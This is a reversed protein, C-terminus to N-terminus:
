RGFRVVVATGEPVMTGPAPAQERAIGSGLVKVTIGISGAQEIVKRVPEGTFQPVTVRKGAAVVVGGGPAPTASSPAQLPQQGAKNDAVEKASEEKEQERKAELIKPDILPSAPQGSDEPAPPLAGSDQQELDHKSVPARTGDAPSSRLPDNAPLNNVEAFLSNLDDANEQPEDNDAHLAADVKAAQAPTRLPQDHPVGLYELIEQALEQFVPGSAEAGFHMSHDPSDTIVAITVAPNNVPAFGVFSGVFNTKSYTHTRPDIKQATGTKGAASYGNLQTTLHGTGFEVVGEMMKRMQAATLTSIVRHAGDPLPSPLDNEPHFAAPQLKGDGKMDNTSQLLIHPPLYVGGNAITSAMSILQIPTVAVEQGMPISGITTPNWKRVPKLLGRTEDPLEIGTRDGFGYAKIYQYFKEAGMRQALRIAAVDSSEALAKAVTINGFHEGPADHVIRGAVNIQGGGCDVMGDPTAVHEELAASYTVLKFTSGPEYVDSVAHDRLLDTTAHRFDNPNFTPRVALALIQGTHPDQVVVTGVKAHTRAMNHDLAREAMYQINEDITLVLNEGPLPEREESGLRHRRADVNAYMRGPTGHLDEDFNEELGGLGNDDIGVYGLVQAAIENDPYFRKFEKVTYIGKLNLAKVKAIMEPSQKRAIWAFNRSANLRALMQSGSTFTDTPDVHLVAALATATMPKNDGVESPVAFISDALTTMALEHLNRDYLVGRRPAVEFTRQQQRLARDQWEHHQIVQLWILRGCIVICWLALFALVQLMRIRRMPTVVGTKSVPQVPTFTPRNM